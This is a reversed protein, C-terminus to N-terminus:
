PLQRCKPHTPQRQGGEVAMGRAEEAEDKSVVLINAVVSGSLRYSEAPNFPDARPQAAALEGREEGKGDAVAAAM